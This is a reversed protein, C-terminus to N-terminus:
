ETIPVYLQVAMWDGEGGTPLFHNSFIVVDDLSIYFDAEVSVRYVNITVVTNASFDGEVIFPGKYEPNTNGYLTNKINHLPWQPEPWLYSYTDYWSNYYRTILDPDYNHLSQVVDSMGILETVPDRAGNIGDVHIVRDPTHTRIENIAETMLASYVSSSVDDPGNLLNFSLANAPVDKYREAFMAWQALFADQAEQDVWLDLQQNVPLIARTVGYGPARHLCLTAHLKHKRAWNIAQDIEQLSTENFDYWDGTATYTRYDVPLRVYNFGLESVRQFNWESYGLNGDVLDYKGLLNFGKLRGYEVDEYQPGPDDDDCGAFTLTLIIASLGTLYLLFKKM